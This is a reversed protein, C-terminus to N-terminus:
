DFLIKEVGLALGGLIRFIDIGPLFSLCVLFPQMDFTFVSADLSLCQERMWTSILSSMYPAAVTRIPYSVSSNQATLEVGLKGSQPHRRSSAQLM